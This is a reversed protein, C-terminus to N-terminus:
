KKGDFSQQVSHLRADLRLARGAETGMGGAYGGFRHEGM